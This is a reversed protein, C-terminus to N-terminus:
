QDMAKWMNTNLTVGCIVMFIKADEEMPAGELLCKNFRELYAKDSEGKM